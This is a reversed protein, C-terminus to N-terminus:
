THNTQFDNLGWILIKKDVVTGVACCMFLEAIGKGAMATFAPMWCPRVKKLRKKNGPLGPVSPPDFRRHNGPQLVKALANKLITYGYECLHAKPSPLGHPELSQREMMAPKVKRSYLVPLRLLPEGTRM